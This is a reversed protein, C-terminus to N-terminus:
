KYTRYVNNQVLAFNFHLLFFTSTFVRINTQEDLHLIKVVEQMHVIVKSILSISFKLIHKKEAFIIMSIITINPTKVTKPTRLCLVVM